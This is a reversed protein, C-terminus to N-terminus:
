KPTGLLLNVMRLLTCKSLVLEMFNNGNEDLFRKGKKASKTIV